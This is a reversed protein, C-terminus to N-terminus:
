ADDPQTVSGAFQDANGQPKSGATLGDITGLVQMTPPEYTIM